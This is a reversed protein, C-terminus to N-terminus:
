HQLSMPRAIRRGYTELFTGIHIALVKPEMDEPNSTEGKQALYKM